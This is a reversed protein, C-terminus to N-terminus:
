GTAGKHSRTWCKPADANVLVLTHPDQNYVLEKKKKKKIMEGIKPKGVM